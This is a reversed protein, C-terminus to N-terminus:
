WSTPTLERCADDNPPLERALAAEIAEISPLCEGLAEPLTRVLEYQAVGIPGDLGGLAYEAVVRNRHQCLLLGITRGDDRGKVQADIANRYFNLKGAHEPLFAGVKVEVVVYRKLRIHYLLLDLFYEDGGVELRVQRGVFAFGAGLELLFRTLHRLLGAEVDREQAAESLGLFDFHYPDKLIAAVLHAEAAAMSEAFNTIAAGQRQHLKSEIQRVLVVRSWGEAIAQRAYWERQTPDSLRTLLTVVHFWPLQAASQQGIACDPCLQAFHAMYKLNRASFGRLGPFARRLDRALWDVVKAGWGLRQQRDLIERGLDHYLRIQESNAALVARQRAGRIRAAIARVWAVYGEPLVLSHENKSDM